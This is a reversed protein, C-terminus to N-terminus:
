HLRCSKLSEQEGYYQGGGGLGRAPCRRRRIVGREVPDLFKSHENAKGRAILSDNHSDVAEGNLQSAPEYHPTSIRQFAATESMTRDPEGYTFAGWLVVTSPLPRTRVVQTRAVRSTAVDHPAHLARRAATRCSEIANMVKVQAHSVHGRNARRTM